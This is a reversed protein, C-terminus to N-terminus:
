FTGPIAKIISKISQYLIVARNTFYVNVYLRIGITFLSFVCDATKTEEMLNNNKWRIVTVKVWHFESVKNNNNDNM